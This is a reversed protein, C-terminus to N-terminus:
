QKVGNTIEMCQLKVGPHLPTSPSLQKSLTMTDNVCVNYKHDYAAMPALYIALAIIIAAFIIMGGLKSQDSVQM